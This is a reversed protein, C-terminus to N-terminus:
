LSKERLLEAVVGEPHFIGLYRRVTEQWSCITGEAHPLGLLTRAHNMWTSDVGYRRLSFLLMPMTSCKFARSHQWVSSEENRRFLGSVGLRLGVRVLVRLRDWLPDRIRKAVFASYETWNRFTHRLRNSEFWLFFGGFIDRVSFWRNVMVRDGTWGFWPRLKREVAETYWKQITEGEPVPSLDMRQVRRLRERYSFHYERHLLLLTDGMAICAKDIEIQFNERHQHKVQGEPLFYLAPILLGSGRTMFYIGGDLLPLREAPLKPMIRKLDINGWLVRHGNRIEYSEVRNPAFRFRLPHSIGIDIQKLGTESALREALEALPRAFRKRMRFYDKSVIVSIDFDNVPRFRGNEHMVGGEGRGFGGTLVIAQLRDGMLDRIGEVVRNLGIQISQDAKLDNIVTYTGM